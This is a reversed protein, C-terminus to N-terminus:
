SIKNIRGNALEERIKIVKETTEKLSYGEFYLRVIEEAYDINSM